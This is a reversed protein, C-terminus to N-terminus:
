EDSEAFAPHMTRMHGALQRFTRKCCPCVGHAVRNKIRKTAGRQASLRREVQRRQGRQYEADARAGYLAAQKAVVERRLKEVDSEAQFHQSHGDPCHFFGHSRRLENEHHFELAFARNCVCCTVPKFSLTLGIANSM